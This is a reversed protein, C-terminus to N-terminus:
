ATPWSFSALTGLKILQAINQAGTKELLHARHNEVTHVSIGCDAAIQKSSKGDMLQGLLETERPTLAALRQRADLISAERDSRQLAQALAAHVAQMVSERDVPKKLFEVAGAKMSQVVTATEGHGTLMVVPVPDGERRLRSLLELGTMGPLRMDLVLCAPFNSRHRPYRELFEEASALAVAGLGAARLITELCKRVSLDDDVVFVTPGNTV